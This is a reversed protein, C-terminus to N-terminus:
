LRMERLFEGPRVIGIQPFRLEARRFDTVNNTVIWDVGGAVALEMLHNDGEDALNPRWGYYLHVWECVSLFAELLHQRELKSLPSRQFLKRRGMVDEYELFLTEGIVPQVFGGLCARLVARNDGRGSILSAVIVNSDVVIRAGV